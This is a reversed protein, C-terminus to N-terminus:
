SRLVARYIRYESIPTADLQHALPRLLPFLLIAGTVFTIATELYFGDTQSVCVGLANICTKVDDHSTCYLDALAASGNWQPAFYRCRRITLLDMFYLVLTENIRFSLSALTNLLTMYTAGITPDSVRANYAMHSVCMTNSFLSRLGLSVLISTYFTTSFTSSADKSAAHHNSRFDPIHYVFPILLLGLLARPVAALLSTRIPHPGNSWRSVLVPIALDVPYVLTTMLALKERSLGADILKLPFLSEPAAFVFDTVFLWLAYLLIPKLCGISLMCGYTQAITLRPLSATRSEARVATLDAGGCQSDLRCTKGGKPKKLCPNAATLEDLTPIHRSVSDSEPTFFLMVVACLVFISGWFYLFGAFSIIGQGPVPIQRIYANSSEPSELVLFAVYALIYGCSQGLSKCTGALAVNRKSLLSISLGDVITEHTAVLATILLWTMTLPWVMIEHRTALAGWRQGPSRGLWGDLRGAFVWFSVGIGLQLPLLWSRRRGFRVSFVADVVPTWLLKLSYPWCSLSFAAQLTYDASRADSQLILPLASSIGSPIGPYILQYATLGDSTMVETGNETLHSVGYINSDPLHQLLYLFFIIALPGLDERVGRPILMRVAL